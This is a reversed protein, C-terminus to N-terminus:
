KRRTKRIYGSICVYCEESSTIDIIERDRSKSLGLEGARNIEYGLSRL